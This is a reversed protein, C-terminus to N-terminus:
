DELIRLIIEEIRELQRNSLMEYVNVGGILVSEVIVASDYGPGAQPGSLVMPEGPEYDFFVRMPISYAEIDLSQTM